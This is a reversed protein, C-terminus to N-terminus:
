PEILLVNICENHNIEPIYGHDIMFGWNRYSRGKFFKKEFWLIKNNVKNFLIINFLKVKNFKGIPM